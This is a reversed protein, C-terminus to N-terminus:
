PDIRQEEELSGIAKDLGFDVYTKIPYVEDKTFTFNTGWLEIPGFKQYDPVSVTYDEVESVEAQPYQAYIQSEIISKFKQQTRIYFHINGEISVIELAFWARVAGGWYKQLWNGHGGTQYLSQLMLEMALPSKFVEKPPKIELLTWKLNRLFETQIYSMWLNWALYSLLPLAIILAISSTVFSPAVSQEM